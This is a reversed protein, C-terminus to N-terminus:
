GKKGAPAGAPAAPPSGAAVPKVTAGPKAKATGEVILRDGAKLGSAVLWKDGVVRDVVVTRTEVKNGAGVVLATAGGKPDRAIGQQPALIANPAEAQSIFARVFMGPLLVGSANPFAARLTVTGTNPDVTVETFQLVGTAPYDSGDELKLRVPASNPMVGGSALRSRLKLLDAASQSLDVYIPDMRQISALPDAQSATVLAGVTFNSKGIRGSIPANVRTYGLNIQATQVAARQLAVNATAQKYAATADDADQKSVAEMGVLGAYRDAKAKAAAVAAEANALSARAQALSAQYPAPDIQYLPQGARVEGGEKFLLSKIIGSVQPRVESSQYAVTRGQLETELPVSQAALTVVGVEVPGMNMQPKKQGCGSALVATAVLVAAAPIKM